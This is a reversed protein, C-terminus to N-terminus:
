GLGKQVVGRWATTKNAADATREDPTTLFLGEALFPLRRCGRYVSQEFERYARNAASFRSGM